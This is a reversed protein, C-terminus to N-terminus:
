KRRDAAAFRPDSRLSKLEPRRRIEELFAGSRVLDRYAALASERDGIMEYVLVAHFQVPAAGPALERARGIEARAADRDGRQARLLAVDARLDADNPNVALQKAALEFARGYYPEAKSELGPTLRYLNALNGLLPVSVQGLRLASEMPPVADAYREQYFYGVALNNYAIASPKLGISQLAMTEADAYRGMQIYLGSLQNYPRPNDPVLERARRFSKESEPYRGRRYYFSGLSLHGGAYGPEARIARQFADEADRFKGQSELTQALRIWADRNRPDQALVERFLTAAADAKGQEKEIAGATLLAEPIRGARRLAEGSSSRAKEIWAPEKTVFFKQLYAEALGAYARAFNPDRELAQEFVRVAFDAKDPGSQLYGRGQLYYDAAEPERSAGPLTSALVGAPLEIELLEGVARALEDQLALPNALPRTIQRSRLQRQTRTDSLSATIRVQDGATEVSGSIALDVGFLARVDKASQPKAQLVDGMPVVWFARQFAELGSISSSVALVLGLAFARSKEDTNVTTFPLVAVGRTAPAAAAFYRWAAVGGLALIVALAAAVAISFWSRRARVPSRAAISRTATGSVLAQLERAVDAGGAYRDERDKALCKHVVRALDPPTDPAVRDLPEPDAALLKRFMVAKTDAVFPRAGALMEYLVVGLSFVDSRADVAEGTAQEPSMYAPTGVVWGEETLSRLRTSEAPQEERPGTWKALGFDVVKVLGEPTVMINAPKLDRHAIGASHARGLANAVQVGLQLAEDPPLRREALIEHLSRGEIFEMVVYIANHEIGIDHVTLINPHSLASAARAERLFRERRDPDALGEERLMKIAVERGLRTDRARYVEGMGGAGVLTLM